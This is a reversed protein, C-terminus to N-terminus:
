QRFRCPPRSGRQKRPIGTRPHPRGSLPGYLAVAMRRAPCELDLAHHRPVIPRNYSLAIRSRSYAAWSRTPDRSVTRGAGRLAKRVGDALPRALPASRAERRREEAAAGRARDRDVRGAVDLDNRGDEAMARRLRCLPLVIQDAAAFGRAVMTAQDVVQTLLTRPPRAASRCRDP